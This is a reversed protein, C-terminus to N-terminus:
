IVDIYVQAGVDTVAGAASPDAGVMIKGAPVGRKALERAVANARKMSAELGGMLQDVSDAGYAPAHGVVRVVGGTQRYLRAVEAISSRDAATLDASNARFDLTAVQFSAAPEPAPAAMGKGGGKVSRKGSPPVLHIPEEERGYGYGAPAYGSSALAPQPMAVMGPTVAQQASEALRRQFQDQLPKGRRGGVPVTEPIDAAAPPTMNVSAPPANPGDDRAQAARRDASLRNDAQAVQQASAPPLEQAVVSPKPPVKGEPAAAVQTDSPAPTRRALPKTPAVERRVPEAYKSNGKDAPLGKALDKRTDASKTTDAGKGAVPTAMAPEDKDSFWAVPNIADPVSSCGALMSVAVLVKGAKLM